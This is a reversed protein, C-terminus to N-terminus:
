SSGPIVHNNVWKSLREVLDKVASKWSGQGVGKLESQDAGATVKVRVITESFKTLSAGGFGGQAMSREERNLVEVVVQAEGATQVLAFQSKGKLVDQLIAVAELRGKEEESGAADPSQATTVFIRVPAAHKRAKQAAPAFASALVLGLAVLTRM